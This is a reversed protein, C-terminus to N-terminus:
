ADEFIALVDEKLRRIMEKRAQDTYPLGDQDLGVDLVYKTAKSGDGFLYISTSGRGKPKRATIVCNEIDDESVSYADTENLLEAVAAKIKQQPQGLLSFLKSQVARKYEPTPDAKFAIMSSSSLLAKSAVDDPRRALTVRIDVPTLGKLDEADSRIICSRVSSGLGLYRLIAKKLGTYDGYLGLYQTGVYIKGSESLYLLFHFVRQNISEASIKGKESNRFSHGFYAADFKGQFLRDGVRKLEYFPVLRGYKVAEFQDKDSIDPTPQSEIKDLLADFEAQVFTSPMFNGTEDRLGKELFHFAVYPITDNSSRPM